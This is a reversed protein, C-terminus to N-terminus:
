GLRNFQAAVPWCETLNWVNVFGGGPVLLIFPRGDSAPDGSPLRVLNARAPDDEWLPYYWSGSEAAAYLRSIGLGIDGTFTHESAIQALTANWVPENMLNMGRIADAAIPRIGPHSLLDGLTHYEYAM